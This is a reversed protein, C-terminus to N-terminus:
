NILNEKDIHCSSFNESLFNQKSVIKTKVLIRRFAIDCRSKAKM